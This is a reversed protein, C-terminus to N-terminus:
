KDPEEIINKEYKSPNLDQVLKIRPIVRNNMIMEWSDFFEMQQTDYHLRQISQGLPFLEQYQLQTAEEIKGEELYQRVEELIRNFSKEKEVIKMQTEENEFIDIYEKVLEDLYQNASEYAKMERAFTERAKNEDVYQLLVRMKNQIIKEKLEEVDKEYTSMLFDRPIYQGRSINMKWDCPPNGGCYVVYKNNKQSFHMGVPKQCGECNPLVKTKGNKRLENLNNEYKNKYSFYQNVKHTYDKNTDIKDSKKHTMVSPFKGDVIGDPLNYLILDDNNQCHLKKLHILGKLNLSKLYNGNCVLVELTEPLSNIQVLSNHNVFCMKLKPTTSLDLTELKNDNVYLEVLSSPLGKIETLKNHVCSLFEVGEPINTITTIGGKKFVIHKLKSFGNTSLVSLDLMGTISVTVNLETIRKNKRQIFLELPHKEVIEVESELSLKEEPSHEKEEQM